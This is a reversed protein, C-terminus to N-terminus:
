SSSVCVTQNWHIFSVFLSFLLQKEKSVTSTPVSTQKKRQTGSTWAPSKETMNSHSPARLPSSDIICLDDNGSPFPLSLLPFYDLKVLECVAGHTHTRALSLTHPHTHLKAASVTLDSASPNQRFYRCNFQTHIDPLVCLGRLLFLAAHGCQVSFSFVGTISNFHLAILFLKEWALAHNILALGIVPARALQLTQAFLLLARASHEHLRDALLQSSSVSTFSKLYLITCIKDNKISM